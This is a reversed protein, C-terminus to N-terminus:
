NIRLNKGVFIKNLEEVINQIEEEEFDKAKAAIELTGWVPEGCRICVIGKNMLYDVSQPVKNVLDEILIEKTILEM